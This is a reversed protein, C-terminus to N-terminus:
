SVSEIMGMNDLLQYLEKVSMRHVNAAISIGNVILENDIVYVSNGKMQEGVVSLHFLLHKITRM